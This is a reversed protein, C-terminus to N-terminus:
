RSSPLNVPQTIRWATVASQDGSLRCMSWWRVVELVLGWGPSLRCSRSVSVVEDVGTAGHDDDQTAALM